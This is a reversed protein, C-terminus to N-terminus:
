GVIVCVVHYIIPVIEGLHCWSVLMILLRMLVIVLRCVIHEWWWLGGVTVSKISPLHLDILRLDNLITLHVSLLLLRHEAWLERDFPRWLLLAIVIFTFLLLRIVILVDRLRLYILLLLLYCRLLILLYLLLLLLLLKFYRHNTPKM